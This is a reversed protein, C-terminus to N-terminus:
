ETGGEVRQRVFENFEDADTFERLGEHSKPIWWLRPVVRPPAEQGQELLTVDIQYGIVTGGTFTRADPPPGEPPRVVPMGWLHSWANRTHQLGEFANIDSRLQELEDKPLEAQEDSLYRRTMAQMICEFIVEMEVLLGRRLLGVSTAFKGRKRAEKEPYRDEVSLFSQHRSFWDDLSGQVGRKKTEQEIEARVGSPVLSWLRVLKHTTPYGIRKGDPDDLSVLLTKLALEFAMGLLPGLFRRYFMFALPSLVQNRGRRGLETYTRSLSRGYIAASWWLHPLVCLAGDLELDDSYVWKEKKSTQGHQM